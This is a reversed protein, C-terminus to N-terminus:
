LSYRLLCPRLAFAMAYDHFFITYKRDCNEPSVRIRFPQSNGPSDQNSGAAHLGERPSSEIVPGGCWNSLEMDWLECSLEFIMVRWPCSVWALAQVDPRIRGSAWAGPHQQV